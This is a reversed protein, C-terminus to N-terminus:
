LYIIFVIFLYHFVINVHLCDLLTCDKSIKSNQFNNRAPGRARASRPGPGERGVATQSARPNPHPTNAKDKTRFSLRGHMGQGSMGGVLWRHRLAHVANSLASLCIIVLHYIFWVGLHYSCSLYITVSQQAPELRSVDFFRQLRTPWFLMFDSHM